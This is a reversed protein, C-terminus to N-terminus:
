RIMFRKRQRFGLNDIQLVYAGTGINSPITFRDNIFGVQIILDRQYVLQGISNIIKVSYHGSNLPNFSYHLVGGRTVPNDYITLGGPLDGMTFTEQEGYGINGATRAYAKYYYTASPVLGTLVSTFDQGSTITSPVKMGTGNSFGSIGSYEIGTEIVPSCGQNVLIGSVKAREPSELDAGATTVVPPVNDGTGSVAVSIADAGGGAVPIVTSYLGQAPPAFLVYVAQSLTGASANLTLTSTFPGSASTAFRYGSVPGVTINTTNLNSGTLTFSNPGASDGVCVTGFATLPTANLVVPIIGTGSVAVTVATTAGGGTISINGTKLGVSQPTFRVYVPTPTLLAASYPISATSGWVTNNASVEFDASPATVTIQGPAGTLNVGTLNFSQSASSTNVGINGFDAITGAASLSPATSCLAVPSSSNRPAPTATFFDNLNNDTDLCGNNLRFGATTVSLVPAAATESESASGYGVFDVVAGAPQAAYSTNAVMAATGLAVKGNLGSLTLTFIQDPTVPLNSLGQGAVTAVLYYAGPPIVVGSPITFANTALSALNGAASGYMIQFGSIDQPSSSNNHLEVFDANFTATATGGGGYVQSIVVGGTSPPNVPVGTGSVAVSASAGGGSISVNGSKFGTTQPTFRVYLPTSTLTASAYSVTATAGWATNDSSVQFDTSPSSITITGPAGSLNSGSLNFSQSGSNTLITVNGFDNVTGATLAPAAPPVGNGSVAVSATAGGGAISINGSKLGATQPTFRVYASTSALTASSYAVSATAGWSTNDSSVQFDTSPSTITIVGPAGTLNIGSLTFSQSASNTLVTVNGFDNVTGANLAPTAPSVGTGSVAVSATAGGGSISISGSKLGATQPTFRVYVPTSSLTASSYAVSATAGWNTNDSSVEFDTSPSTVTIVGPTGTLNVGSLTFSQSVSNTLVTVNGFDNVTGATLAPTPAQCIFVPTSSNRPAPTGLSFDAFNYNTDDCGNNNRFAANITDIGSAPAAGEFCISSPGYGVLDVINSTIPCLSLLNTDSVLAIRGASQGMNILPNAVFDPTPLPLGFVSTDASMRILYYGGPPIVAAPLNAKGSWTAGTGTASYYQISYGDINQPTTTNNRLEVYDSKYTAGSNNGGAGYLQSIVLSPPAPTASAGYGRVIVNVPNTVGGGTITVNGTKLGISQPTFRVYAPTALLTDTAYPISATSGWNTNDSSVEFDAGPSTITLSGPAGTLNVGSVTFSQSASVTSVTVMGFNQVTTATVSPTPTVSGCNVAPSAANRPVPAGVTFDVSNNNTEACGSNNRIAATTSSLVPVAATESENASGYGVFDIVAGAPQATYTTNAVMAATGFAVKGNTGSLTLTFTHDAAIPLPALGTGAVTAVLLFGGPPIIVGSPFIFVNSATSGLNGSTSGYMLQYGSIDQAANSINHLEVYDANYTGTAGGGGGYVQSIVVTTSQSYSIFSAISLILTFIKKM